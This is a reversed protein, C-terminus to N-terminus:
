IPADAIRGLLGGICRKPINVPTINAGAVQQWIFEDMQLPRSKEIALRVEIKTEGGRTQFLIIQGSDM